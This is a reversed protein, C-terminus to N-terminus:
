DAEALLRMIERQTDTIKIVDGDLRYQELKELLRLVQQRTESM